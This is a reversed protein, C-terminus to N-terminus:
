GDFQTRNHGGHLHVSLEGAKEGLEHDFTVRTRRGARRRITPGPYSGGYTWLKTKPGPLIQQEAERIPIRIHDDSLVRPIPLRARFPTAAAAPPPEATLPVFGGSRGRLPLLAALAGGGLVGLFARRGFRRRPM